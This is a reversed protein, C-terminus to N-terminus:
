RLGEADAARFGRRSARDVRDGAGESRAEVGGALDRHPRREAIRLRPCLRRAQRRFAPSTRGHRRRAPDPQPEAAPRPECRGQRGAGAGDSARDRGPPLHRPRHLPLRRGSGAPRSRQGRPREPRLRRASVEIFNFDGDPGYAMVAYPSDGGKGRLLGGAVRALGDPGSTATALEGNNHAYLRLTVGSIPKADGLSRVALAMGDDGSYATLGLNSVLVWNTAVSPESGHDKEATRQAVALYVGPGKDKLIDKLPIATVVARNREGSISMQGEWVLSGSGNIVDDVDSNGFSLTLKDSDLSPVLNRENVRLIRLKIKDLNITTIPLGASGERPLVYGTGSFKIQPKRDPVVVHASYTDRLTEGTDSPFGTLLSLQYNGGHKLGDLCITDGHATVVGDAAPESRLYAGYSVDAKTSIKENLRLCASPIDAESEVEVKTVRFAVLEELQAVREAM